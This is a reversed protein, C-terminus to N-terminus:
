EQEGYRKQPQEVFVPGEYESRLKLYLIVPGLASPDVDLAPESLGDEESYALVVLPGCWVTHKRTETGQTDSGSVSASSLLQEVCANTTLSRGSTNSDYSIQIWYPLYRDHFAITKIEGAGTSPFYKAIDLPRGDDSYQLWIFKPKSHPAPLYLARRYSEDPKKDDSSSSTFPRCLQKHIAWDLTQCALSCYYLSKCTSCRRPSNSSHCVACIPPSEPTVPPPVAIYDELLIPTGFDQPSTSLM